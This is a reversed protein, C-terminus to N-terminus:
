GVRGMIDRAKERDREAYVATMSDSSHGLIIRAVDIGFEKRLWTAANHRLQHPHWVNADRWASRLAAKEAKREPADDKAPNLEAPMGFAAECGRAIARRYTAVTYRAKARSRPRDAAREARRQHSPTMPTRRAARRSEMREAEAEAPSFLFAAPDEKLFPGVIKQARPGLDIIREEDLHQKKHRIPRYTWVTGGRDIDGARMIVTEGPRMGTVLQLDIMARIQRSVLPRVAAIRDEPVPKVPPTERAGSKGKRLGPVAALAQHVAPPILENGVAWKFVGKVRAAQRNIYKRSWDFKVMEGMLAKLALPGFETAPKEGYLTKLPKLALRYNELEGAPSGDANVYYNKAHAWFAAIVETVTPDDARLPQRNNAIWEALLRDYEAKSEASGFPGLYHTEGSLTVVAQGSGAHPRYQPFAKFSGKPRAM